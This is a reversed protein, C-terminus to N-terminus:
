GVGGILTLAFDNDLLRCLEDFDPEINALYPSTVVEWRDATTAGSATLTFGFSGDDILYPTGSTGTNVQIGANVGSVSFTTASLMQITWRDRPTDVGYIFASFTITGSGYKRRGYPVRQLRELDLYDVGTVDEVIDSIKSLPVKSKFEQGEVSIVAKIADKILKLINVRRVNSLLYATFALEIDVVNVAIVNPIVPPVKASEIFDGVNKLLGSGSLDYPDFSGSPIPDDGTAAIVITEEFASDGKYALVKSVGAVNTKIIQYDDHTVIRDMAKLEKPASEKAQEITEKNEGGSPAAPNTISDVFTHSGALVTLKNAGVQNGRHGGGIRYVGVLNNTGTSPIKGNVGDGFIVKVNDLEDITVRYVKDIPTSSLFNPVETWKEPTGEDVWIELSSDGNPNTTLPKRQLIYKQDPSGDSSGLVEAPIVTGHYASVDTTTGAGAAVFDEALVFTELDAGDSTDVSIQTNKLITGAGNTVITMLAEASKYTSLTYSIMETHKVVSRRQIAAPLFAENTCRDQYFSMNDGFFSFVETIAVGLDLESRDTWDPTYLDALGGSDLVDARYGEFDRTLLDITVSQGSLTTVTPM